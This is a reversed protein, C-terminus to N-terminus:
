LTPRLSAVPGGVRNNSRLLPIVNYWQADEHASVNIWRSGLGRRGVIQSWQSWFIPIAWSYQMIALCRVSKDGFSALDVDGLPRIIVKSVRFNFGEGKSIQDRLCPAAEGLPLVASLLPAKGAVWEIPVVLSCHGLPAGTSAKAYFVMGTGKAKGM